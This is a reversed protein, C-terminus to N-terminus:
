MRGLFNIYARARPLPGVEHYLYELLGQGVKGGCEMRAITEHLVAGKIPFPIWSLVKCRIEYDKGTSDRLELLASVPTKGDKGYVTSVHSDVIPNNREGDFVYGKLFAKSGIRGEWLNFSLDKSFACCFLRYHHVSSWDRIGWSHDRHGFCPGVRVREGNLVIKGIYSGSQEYHQTGISEFTRDSRDTIYPHIRNLPTFLVDVSCKKSLYRLRWGAGEVHFELGKLQFIYKSTTPRGFKILLKFVVPEGNRLVMVFGETRNKPPRFGITTILSLGSRQDSMVFYYSERWAGDDYVGGGAAQAQLHNIDTLDIYGLTM